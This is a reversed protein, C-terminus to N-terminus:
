TTPRFARILVSALCTGGYVVVVSWVLTDTLDELYRVYLRGCAVALPISLLVLRRPSHEIVRFQELVFEVVSPVPLIWLMWPDLHAPWSRGFGLVVAVVLSLPYLVGCRRCVWRGRVLMCRDQESPWHHSLWM